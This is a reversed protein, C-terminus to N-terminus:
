FTFQYNFKYKRGKPTKFNFSYNNLFERFQTLQVLNGEPKKQFYVSVVKGKENITLDVDFVGKLQHKLAFVQLIGAEKLDIEIRQKAAAVITDADTLTPKNQASASITILTLLMITIIKFMGTEM